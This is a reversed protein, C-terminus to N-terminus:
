EQVFIRKVRPSIGTLVEYSITDMSKAMDKITLDKGFLIVQDKEQCKIDTVDVMCMDMCINGITKASKGNILVTGKGRGLRRDLGDAYGIPLTAIKSDRKLITGRSYGISEGNDVKRIQSIITKLTGAPILNKEEIENGSIGYLGIGLRVMDFHSEKYTTIGGTNTIHKIVKYGLINELYISLKSFMLVQKQTFDLHEIESSAALHSFVTVVKIQEHDKLIECLKTNEEPNFGLRHMGTDFKIHIPFLGVYSNKKLVYLFEALTRFSYIEPELNNQIMVKYAAADPNMVMIPLSVGHKRLEVGEDAYAVALYDVKQYELLNAIEYTGSGYSLAKVMAMIKCNSKLQSKYFNLNHVLASMNIELVTEHAQEQLMATINEFSFARAGKILIVENFFKDQHFSNIFDATTQFFENEFDKFYNACDFINQGIGIIRNVKKSRLLSAVIKYLEVPSLGTQLLDSIIVTKKKHSKQNSLLNVAIELSEIDASYADNILLCSNNGQLLELRMAVPRILKAKEFIKNPEFGLLLLTACCHLMNEISALDKFPIEASFTQGKYELALSYGTSTETKSKLVLDASGKQSWTFFRTNKGKFVENINNIIIESDNCYILTETNKFLKLKEIIKQSIDNFNESHAVGINTFVGINPQIIKELNEMENPMSIGAEFIALEHDSSMNLVSLPVGVQSNFSKPSRIIKFNDQLLEFLWEKIITKGNSGTIAIVPIKYQERHFKSLQQMAEITNKVLIINCGKLTSYYSNNECVIFNKVGKNHLEKIFQHGNNRVGSIAFFLANEKYSFNRSDIFYADIILQPNYQVLLQGSIIDTIQQVSYHNTKL